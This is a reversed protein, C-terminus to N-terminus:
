LGPLLLAPVDLGRRERREEEIEGEGPERRAIYGLSAKGCM